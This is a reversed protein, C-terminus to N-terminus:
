RVSFEIRRNRFRGEETDNSAIPRVDGYGTAVLTGPSVGQQVLYDRVANARQQSLQLNGNPDGTNDTHGGISLVTGAPAAKLATAAGNLYVLADSPIQASGVPFNIVGLNLARVLDQASYGPRLAGLADSARKTALQVQEQLNFAIGSTTGRNAAWLWLLLVVGLLALLPWKYRILFSPAAAVAAGPMSLYSAIDSSLRAPIVGGPALRQILKPLMFAIASVATTFSLGAKSAIQTITDRGMASEVADPSVAKPEGGLWSTVLNGVGARRFRELFSGVGGGDQIFSLIGSLVSGASSSGIGFESGVENVVADLAGM